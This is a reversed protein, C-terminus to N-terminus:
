RTRARRAFVKADEEIFKLQGSFLYVSGKGSAMRYGDGEEKLLPVGQAEFRALTHADIIIVRGYTPVVLRGGRRVFDLAEDAKHPAVDSLKM